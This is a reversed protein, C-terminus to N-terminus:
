VAVCRGVVAHLEGRVVVRGIRAVREGRRLWHGLEVEHVLADDVVTVRTRDPDFLLNDLRYDGHLLVDLPEPEAISDNEELAVELWVIKAESVNQIAEDPTEGDSMCGPLLPIKAYWTSDADNHILVIPYPLSLYYELTKETPM